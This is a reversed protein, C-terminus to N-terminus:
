INNNYKNMVLLNLLLDLSKLVEEFKHEKIETILKNGNNILFDSKLETGANILNNALLNIKKVSLGKRADQVDSLLNCFIQKNETKEILEKLTRLDKNKNLDKHFADKEKYPIFNAICQILKEPSVPKQLIDNFLHKESNLKTATLAIVPLKALRKSNRIAEITQIGTMIPMQIDLIVIDPITGKLINLAEQGNSAEKTKLNHKILHEKLLLRNSEMDEVLLVKKGEFNYKVNLLSSKEHKNLASYEINPINITFISGVNIKSELEITGGMIEVLRKTISLGLGTGGYKRTKKGDIQNFPNFIEKQFDENIGIGTDAISIKLDVKQQSKSSFSQKITINVSGQHTFKIANGILNFLIQRIRIEDILLGTALNGIIKINFDINKEKSLHSYIRKIENIITKPDIPQPEIKLKGAELKSIDLIDNILHLLATGNVRINELYKKTHAENTKSHIIETFGLIANMPTRIEHSMNSLFENKITNAIEAQEKAEILKQEYQKRNTIDLIYEIMQIVEGSKNFIPYAHIEVYQTEGTTSKHVHEVTIPKKTKVVENIPCPHNKGTCPKNSNHSIEYCYNCSATKNIQKAAVSNATIIKKSKVDLVFFPHPLSEIISESFLNKELLKEEFFANSSLDNIYALVCKKNNYTIIKAKIEVTIDTSNKKCVKTIYKEPVPEGSLRRHYNDIVQSKTYNPIFLSIPKYLLEENTFNVISQMKKNSFVIKEDCIIIVGESSFDLIDTILTNETNNSM